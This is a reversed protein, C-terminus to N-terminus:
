EVPSLAVGHGLCDDDRASQTAGPSPNAVSKCLVVADDTDVEVVGAPLYGCPVADVEPRDVHGVAALDPLDHALAVGVSDDM